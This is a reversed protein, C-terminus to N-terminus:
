VSDSCLRLLVRRCGFVVPVVAQFLRASSGKLHLTELTRGAGYAALRAREFNSSRRATRFAFIWFAWRLLDWALIILVEFRHRRVVTEVKASGFQSQKWLQNRGRAFASAVIRRPTVNERAVRHRIVAGPCFWVAIGAARVRDQFETDEYTGRSHGKRGITEDWGGFTEFLERPVAMNAGWVYEPSVLPREEGYDLTALNVLAPETFWAPWPGLDHPVPIQVGGAIMSATGHRAFLDLYASIWHPDALTDDDTFLVLPARALGIGANKGCSLGPRREYATRFRDDRRCWAELVTSTEDTSANDIVIVEFAAHTIQAALAGLVDDLYHARNYTSVIVSVVVDANPNV